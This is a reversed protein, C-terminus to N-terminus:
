FYNFIIIMGTEEHSRCWKEFFDMGKKINQIASSNLSNIRHRSLLGNEFLLNCAQLYSAVPQASEQNPEESLDKVAAIM